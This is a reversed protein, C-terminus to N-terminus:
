IELPMPRGQGTREREFDDASRSALESAVQGLQENLTPRGYHKVPKSKELGWWTRATAQWDKVKTKGRFWNLGEYYNYFYDADNRSRGNNEFFEYLIDKPPPITKRYDSLKKRPKAEEFEFEIESEKKNNEKEEVLSQTLSTTPTDPILTTEEREYAGKIAGKNAGRVAGKNKQFAKYNDLNCITLITTIHAGVQARVQAWLQAGPEIQSMKLNAIRVAKYSAGIQEALRRESIILQGNEDANIVLWAFIQLQVPSYNGIDEM